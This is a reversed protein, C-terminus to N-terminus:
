ILQNIEVTSFGLKKLQTVRKVHPIKKKHHKYKEMLVKFSNKKNVLDDIKYCDKTILDFAKKRDAIIISEKEM